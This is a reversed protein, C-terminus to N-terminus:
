HEDPFYEPNFPAGRLEEHIDQMVPFYEVDEPAIVDETQIDHAVSM